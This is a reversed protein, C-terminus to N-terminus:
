PTEGQVNRITAHSTARLRRVLWPAALVLALPAARAALGDRQGDGVTGDCAAGEDILSDCDDDRGNGAIEATGPNVGAAHDDCDLGPEACAVSAPTGYGDDDVDTCATTSLTALAAVNMRLIQEAMALSPALKDPTDTTRHYDAYSDWDNEIALVAPIGRDLYPVHDSGYPDLSTVIRLPTYTDAAAAYVDLLWAHESGTELLCDLDADGTYGIMDLDLVARVKAANGSAVLSAAHAESGYYGQEEAAFCAFLLTPGPPHDAFIRALELVGACGSADDEAGPAATGPLQSISDYHAGVILWDDPATTGPFRALVNYATTGLVQFSQTTVVAGPLAGFRQVLWTRASAIGSGFTYRNWSALQTVDAFWRAVDVEGVPVGAARPASPTPWPPANARGRALVANARFPRVVIREGPRVAALRLEGDVGDLEVIAWRGASALVRVGAATLSSAPVGGVQRLLGGPRAPVVEGGENRALAELASADGGVLLVDDLEVWWAVAPDHRLQEVAAFGAGGIGLRAYAPEGPSGSAGGAALMTVLLATLGGARAGIRARRQRDRRSPQAM